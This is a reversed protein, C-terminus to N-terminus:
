FRYGLNFHVKSDGSKSGTKNAADTGNLIRGWDLRLSLRNQWSWRLGLGVSAVKETAIEGPLPNKLTIRGGEFFSLARLGTKKLTPSWLEMGVRYGRDGSIEREELGRVSNAGGLGLQEGAVLPVSAYQADFRGLVNWGQLARNLKGGIHLVSWNNDSGSRSAAYAKANNNSGGPLNRAYGMYVGANTLDGQWRGSYRLEMPRTRVDVGVPVGQFDVDNEFLKDTVSLAMEHSYRKQKSFFHTYRAGLVTGKGAVEFVEAVTGSDIESKAAFIDLLGGAGYFPIQYQGGFQSVKDVGEPSTTYTLTAIQDRGFLNSHQMGAGLRTNGTEKNGTNDLWSFVRLPNQDKVRIRADVTGPQTGAAFNLRVKKGPHRNALALSRGLSQTNINRIEPKLQPLSARINEDSFHENGEVIIAGLEVAVVELRVTGQDLSQPPLNVQHFAFGSSRLAQEFADTAAQLGELGAHEGLFPDLVAHVQRATLPNDGQIEFRTVKFQLDHSNEAHALSHVLTGAIILLIIYLPKM